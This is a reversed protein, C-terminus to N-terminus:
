MGLGRQNMALANMLMNRKAEVAKLVDSNDQKATIPAPQESRVEQNVVNTFVFEIRVTPAESNSKFVIALENPTKGPIVEATYGTEAKQILDYKVNYKKFIEMANKTPDVVPDSITLRHTVLGEFHMSRNLDEIHVPTQHQTCIKNLNDMACKIEDSKKNSDIQILIMALLFFIMMTNAGASAILKLKEKTKNKM